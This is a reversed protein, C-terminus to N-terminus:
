SRRWTLRSALGQGGPEASRAFPGFRFVEQEEFADMALVFADRVADHEADGRQEAWASASAVLASTRGELERVQALSCQAIAALLRAKSFEPEPQAPGADLAANGSGGDLAGMGGDRSGDGDGSVDGDGAPPPMYDPPGEDGPQVEEPPRVVEDPARKECGALACALSLLPIRCKM